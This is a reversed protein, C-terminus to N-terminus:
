RWGYEADDEDFELGEREQVAHQLEHRITDYIFVTPDVFNDCADASVLVTPYSETGNVYIGLPEINEVFYLEFAIGTERYAREAAEVAAWQEVEGPVVPEYGDFPHYDHNKQSEDATWVPSDNDEDM